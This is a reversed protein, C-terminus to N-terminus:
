VVKFEEAEPDGGVGSFEVRGICGRCLPYYRVTDEGEDILEEIGSKLKLFREETLDACEFVSKQVREGYGKLLKVVRYRVRDDGIDFCVLAFMSFM